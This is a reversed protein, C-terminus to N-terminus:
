VTKGCGSTGMLATLVGPQFAGSCDRLLQLMTVGDVKAAQPGVKEPDTTSM